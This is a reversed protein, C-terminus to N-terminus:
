GTVNMAPIVALVTFPVPEDAEIYVHSTGDWGSPMTVVVDGTFLATGDYEIADTTGEIGVSGGQSMHLRLTTESIRQQRGQATGAAAGAEFNLTKLKMTYAFGIHCKTTAPLTLTGTASVTGTGPTGNSLYAVDEGRIHWLGAITTTSAGNYSLACDVFVGDAKNMDDDFYTLKEIYRVTSGDIYRKIKLWVDDGDDGPIISIQEIEAAGDSSDGFGGVIHRHWAMVEQPREYTLACAQGDERVGWVISHPDAQYGLETVGSGTIHPAFVTLDNSVYGDIDFSYAMERMRTGANAPDGRRQMFIVGNGVTVPRCPSSGYSTERSIKVNDPTIAEGLSSASMVYEASTTGIRLQKGSSLWRILDVQESALTYSFAQDDQSGEEFDSFNGSVSGHITQGKSAILRQEFFTVKEPYGRYASWAGEQWFKTPESYRANTALGGTMASDVLQLPLENYGYGEYVTGTAETASTVGTIEVIGYGKHVFEATASDSSSSGTKYMTVSGQLHTPPNYKASNIAGSAATIYYVNGNYSWHETANVSEDTGFETEGNTRTPTYLKFIAGVHDADFLSASAELTVTGTNTNAKITTTQDTNLSRWPGRLVDVDSITWSTASNRVLQALPHDAHSIYLTDASQVYSLEQCETGTYTTTVELIEAVTGGSTYTGYSSSNIGSLEFTNAGANINAVTFERNNVETMGGVGSIVIRDGNAYTDSGSYTVVAPNAKTIGTINQATLTVVGDDAFFRIKLDSFELIYNQEANYVFPVLKTREANTRSYWIFKTGTRKAAGGTVQVIANEIIEAGNQYKATDVRAYLAPSVEGGTWNTQIPNAKPM